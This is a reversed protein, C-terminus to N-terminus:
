HPMIIPQFILFKQPAKQTKRQIADFNERFGKSKEYFYCYNKSEDGIDILILSLICIGTYTYLILIEESGM